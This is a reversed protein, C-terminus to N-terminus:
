NAALARPSSPAASKVTAPGAWALAALVLVLPYCVIVYRPEVTQLQVLFVTRVVFFVLLFLVAPHKRWRSAGVASLSILIINLIGFGLTVTFDSPNVRWREAPPWLKGSYPLLEVRPTFWIMAARTFPISVYTRLPHRATRESALKAFEDDLSPGMYMGRNYSSLLAAVRAREIDSDFAGAPFADMEIPAKNLKWTVTYADGFHVMWTQTWAFFGRPIFDNNTEAYRPALFRVHGMSHANRAAWPALTFLLGVAIWLCALTLRWWDARRLWCVCLVIGIAVVLLPTEPRVLTGLGALLGGLFFWGVYTLLTKTPIAHRSVNMGPHTLAIVFIFVTLTILFTSLTETLVVATYNATFPCLAALWLAITAVQRRRSPPAIRAAIWAALVCTVLDIVAQAVMVAKGTRGFISYVAALFAPYGPMRMDVPALHGHFFRGYTGYDLWNRALEEYFRTDGAYFPFHTIFFLRLAMGGLLAGALHWYSVLRLPALPEISLVPPVHSGRNLEITTEPM